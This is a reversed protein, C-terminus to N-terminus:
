QDAHAIAFRDCRVLARLGLLAPFPHTVLYTPLTELYHRYRGKDVFRERFRSGALAQAIRPLIGGALYIGGRAGLTLALDGAVTGLFCFFMEVAQTAYRDEGRLARATIDAPTPKSTADGALAALAHYIEVLGPGSVAREASVHGFRTRLRDLVAAETDNMPALTVHGGESALPVWKSRYPIIGSVGLGTGPGIVGMPTNAQPEGAGIQLRHSAELRPLSHAIATFDNVVEIHEWGLAEKIAQISFSWSRNVMRVRDGVIPAAVALAGARISPQTGEEDLYSHLASVLDPLADNSLVRITTIEDRDDLIGIRTRSGGIDALLWPRVTKM